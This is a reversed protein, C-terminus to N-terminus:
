CLFNGLFLTWVRPFPTSEAQKSSTWIQLLSSRLCALEPFSPNSERPVWRVPSPNPKSLKMLLLELSDPQSNLEEYESDSVCAADWGFCMKKERRSARQFVAEEKKVCVTHACTWFLTLQILFIPNWLVLPPLDERALLAREVIFLVAVDLEVARACM